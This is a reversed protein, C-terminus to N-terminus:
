EEPRDWGWTAVDIHSPYAALVAGLRDDGDGALAEVTWDLHGVLEPQDSAVWEADAGGDGDAPSAWMMPNTADTRRTSGGVVLRDGTAAAGAIDLTAGEPAAVTGAARLETGDLRWLEAERGADGTAWGVLVTGDGLPALVEVEDVASPLDGAVPEWATGDTSTWVGAVGDATAGALVLCRGDGALRASALPGDTGVDLAAPTWGAPDVAGDGGVPATWLAV